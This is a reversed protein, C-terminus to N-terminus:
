LLVVGRIELWFVRQDVEDNNDDAEEDAAVLDEAEEDNNSDATPEAKCSIGSAM